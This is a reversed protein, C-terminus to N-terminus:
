ILELFGSVLYAVSVLVLGGGWVTLWMIRGRRGLAFLVIGILLGLVVAFVLMEGGIPPGVQQSTEGIRYRM